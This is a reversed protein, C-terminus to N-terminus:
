GSRSVRDPFRRMLIANMRGELRKMPVPKILFADVGLRKAEMVDFNGADNGLMIMPIMPDLSTSDSRVRMLFELGDTGGEPGQLATDCIVLDIAQGTVVASAEDANAAQLPTRAGLDAIANVISSRSEEEPEVVLVRLQSFDFSALAGGTLRTFKKPAAVNM